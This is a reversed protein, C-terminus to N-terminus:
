PEPLSLKIVKALQKSYQKNSLKKGTIIESCFLKLAILFLLFVVYNILVSLNKISLLAEKYPTKIKSDAV